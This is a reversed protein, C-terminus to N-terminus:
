RDVVGTKIWEELIAEVDHRAVEEEVDYEKCLAQTLSDIDSDEELQEWLYAATDNLSILRGFDVAGLGEGVLVKEGCVERLVMGDKKKMDELNVEDIAPQVEAYSLCAQSQTRNACCNKIEIYITKLAIAGVM